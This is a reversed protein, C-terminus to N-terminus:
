MGLRVGTETAMKAPIYTERGLRDFLRPSFRPISTHTHVTHTHVAGGM